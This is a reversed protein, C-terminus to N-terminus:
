HFLYPDLPKFGSSFPSGFDNFIRWHLHWVWFIKLFNQSIKKPFKLIFKTLFNHHLVSCLHSAQPHFSLPRSHPQLHGVSPRLAMLFKSVIRRFNRSLRCVFHLHGKPSLDREPIWLFWRCNKSKKKCLYFVSFKLAHIYLFIFYESGWQILFKNNVFRCYYEISRVFICIM